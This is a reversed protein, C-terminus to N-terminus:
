LGGGPFNRLSSPCKKRGNRKQRRGPSNGRPPHINKEKWKKAAEGPSIEGPPITMKKRGNKEKWKEV